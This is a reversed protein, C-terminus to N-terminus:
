FNWLQHSENNIWSLAVKSDSEIILNSRYYPSSAFLQLAYPIALLEALNSEQCDLLGFFVGVVFRDSNKLNGGCGVPKPKGKTSSDVNFKLDGDKSPQWSVGPTAAILPQFSCDTWPWHSKFGMKMIGPKLDDM